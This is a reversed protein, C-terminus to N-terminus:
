CTTPTRSRSCARCGRAKRWICSAASAWPTENSVGVHRVKGAKVLEDLASLTEEFPISDDAEPHSYNLTGFTNTPREPWHLQYLDIYDTQLRCLSGEIAEPITLGSIPAGDRAHSFGAGSHKTALIYDGRRAANAANWNGLIEETRGVTEKSIPNVPYMEAADVFNIGSALAMDMQRHGGTETTQTGFTMTGLCLDSVMVGTRGLPKMKM